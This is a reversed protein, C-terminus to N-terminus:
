KKKKDVGNIFREFAEIEKDTIPSPKKARPKKGVPLFVPDIDNEALYVSEELWFELFDTGVQMVWLEPPMKRLFEIFEPELYDSLSRM